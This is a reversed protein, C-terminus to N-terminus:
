GGDGDCRSPGLDGLDGLRSFRCVSRSFLLLLRRRLSIRGLPSESESDLGDLSQSRLLDARNGDGGGFVVLYPPWKMLVPHARAYPTFGKAELRTWRAAKRNHSPIPMALTKTM